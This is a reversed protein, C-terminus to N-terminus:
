QRWFRRAVIFGIAIGLGSSIPYRYNYFFNLIPNEQKEDDLDDDYLHHIDNNTTTITAGNTNLTLQHNNEIQRISHVKNFETEEESDSNENDADADIDTDWQRQRIGSRLAGLMAERKENDSKKKFNEDQEKRKQGMKKLMDINSTENIAYYHKLDSICNKDEVLEWQKHSNCEGYFESTDPNYYYTTENRFPIGLYICSDRDITRGESDSDGLKESISLIGSSQLEETANDIIPEKIPVIVKLQNMEVNGVTVTTEVNETTITEATDGDVTIEAMDCDVTTEATDGDVATEVNEISTMEETDGDVTTEVNEVTTKTEEKVNPTESDADYNDCDEITKTEKITNEEEKAMEDLIKMEDPNEIEM